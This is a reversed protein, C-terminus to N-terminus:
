KAVAAALVPDSSDDEDEEEAGLANEWKAVVTTAIANGLVNTVTRGMDLFHDIGLILLIGAEPLNFMPLVAAVVVLSSRPVGAIGKSSVMLVLLMLIQQDLSLPINFAQAIFLSAFTTYIMSGDLNFSYGLPLVFGIVRENVGFKKLTEMLRPYASESSATSFGLLMPQRVAMFLRFVDGKLVVFGAGILALWLVALTVYFGGMFKGYVLLVGLGQTAVVNAVAAFVGIPAFRMVYDTVRLMVPVVEEIAQALLGAKTDRLQGLALGFFLSFVLIQLIENNAMAEFINRPFVHILFDKLNLSATKLGASATAEPLPVGVNAGPQLLNAFVLGIFLSAFSAMLFWGVAKGGIRGVAKADGMGAMGAVLTSFILPALIMKILRLFIDTVIVFYGAVTKADAPSLSANCLYGTLIGLLMAVIIQTTQKNM